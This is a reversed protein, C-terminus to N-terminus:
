LNALVLLFDQEVSLLDRVVYVLEGLYVLITCTYLPLDCFLRQVHKM